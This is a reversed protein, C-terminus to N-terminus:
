FIVLYLSKLFYFFHLPFNQTSFFLISFQDMIPTSDLWIDEDFIVHLFVVFIITWAVSYMSSKSLINGSYVDNRM